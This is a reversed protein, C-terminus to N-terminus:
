RKRAAFRFGGVNERRDFYGSRPFSFNMKGASSKMLAQSDANIIFFTMFCKGGPRLFRGGSGQPHIQTGETAEHFPSISKNRAGASDVFDRSDARHKAPFGALNEDARSPLHFILGLRHPFIPMLITRAFEGPAAKRSIKM